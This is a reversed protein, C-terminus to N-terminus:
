IQCTLCLIVFAAKIGTDMYTDMIVVAQPLDSSLNVHGNTSLDTFFYFMNRFLCAVLYFFM